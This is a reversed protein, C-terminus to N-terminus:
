KGVAALLKQTVDRLTPLIANVISSSAGNVNALVIALSASLDNALGNITGAASGTLGQAANAVLGVVDEIQNLLGQLNGVAGISGLLQNVDSQKM